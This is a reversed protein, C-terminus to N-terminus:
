LQKEPASFAAKTKVTAVSKAVRFGEVQRSFNLIDYCRYNNMVADEHMVCDVMFPVGYEKRYNPDYLFGGGRVSRLARFEKFFPVYKFLSPESGVPDIQPQSASLLYDNYWDNCWEAVNGALDCIGLKSDGKPSYSGVPKTMVDVPDKVKANINAFTQDPKDNGWPYIRGDDFQAAYEWEAETPLRYGTKGYVQCSWDDLNYLPTLGESESLMNCYFAAGCWTVEVAPYQEKGPFVKFVGDKFSIQSHEDGVDQVKQSSKSIVWAESKGPKNLKQKDLLGKAYALNLMDVYQQNTIEFKGLLYDETLTVSRVPMANPFDKSGMQFTGAKVLVLEPVALPKVIAVEAAPKVAQAESKGQHAFFWVGALVVFLILIYRKKM